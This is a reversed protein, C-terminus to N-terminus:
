YCIHLGTIADSVNKCSQLTSVGFELLNDGGTAVHLKPRDSRDAVQQISAFFLQGLKLIRLDCTLINLSANPIFVKLICYKSTFLADYKIGRSPLPILNQILFCQNFM